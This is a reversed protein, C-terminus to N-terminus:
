GVGPIRTGTEARARASERLDFSTGPQLRGSQLGASIDKKILGYDWGGGRRYNAGVFHVTYADPGLSFGLEITASDHSAGAPAPRVHCRDASLLMPRDRGQADSVTHRNIRALDKFPALATELPTWMSRDDTM